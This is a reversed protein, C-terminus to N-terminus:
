QRVRSTKGWLAAKLETESNVAHAWETATLDKRTEPWVDGVDITKGANYMRFFHVSGVFYGAVIQTPSSPDLLFYIIQYTLQTRPQLYKIKIHIFLFLSLLSAKRKKLKLM